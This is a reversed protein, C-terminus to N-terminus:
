ILVKIAKEQEIEMTRETIDQAEIKRSLINTIASYVDWRTLQESTTNKSRSLLEEVQTITKDSYNNIIMFERLNDIQADINRNIKSLLEEGCQKIMSDLGQEVRTLIDRVDIKHKVRAQIGINNWQLQNTCFLRLAFFGSRFKFHADYSNTFRYGTSIKENDNPTIENSTLIKIDMRSATDSITFSFDEQKHAMDMFNIVKDIADRNPLLEYKHTVFATVTNLENNVIAFKNETACAPLGKVSIDRISASTVLERCQALDDIGKGRYFFGLQTDVGDKGTKVLNQTSLM